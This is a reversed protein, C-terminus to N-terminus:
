MLAPLQYLTVTVSVVIYPRLFLRSAEEGCTAIISVSYVQSVIPIAISLM